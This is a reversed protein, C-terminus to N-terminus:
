MTYAKSTSKGTHNLHRNRICCLCACFLVKLIFFGHLNYSGYLNLLRELRRIGGVCLSSVWTGVGKCSGVAWMPSAANLVLSLRQVDLECVCALFYDLEWEGQSLRLQSMM